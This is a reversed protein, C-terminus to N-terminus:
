LIIVQRRLPFTGDASDGDGGRRPLSAGAASLSTQLSKGFASLDNM